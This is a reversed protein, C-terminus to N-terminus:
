VCRAPPRPEPQWTTLNIENARNRRVRKTQKGGTAASVCILRPQEPPHRRTGVSSFNSDYLREVRDPYYNDKANQYKAENKGPAQSIIAINKGPEKDKVTQEVENSVPRLSAM